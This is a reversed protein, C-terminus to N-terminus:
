EYEFTTKKPWNSSNQNERCYVSCVKKTGLYKSSSKSFIIKFDHDRYLSTKVM